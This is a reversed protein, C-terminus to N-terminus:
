EWPDELDALDVRGSEDQAGTVDAPTPDPDDMTWEGDLSLPASLPESPDSEEPPEPLNDHNKLLQWLVAKSSRPKGDVGLVEKGPRSTFLHPNSFLCAKIDPGRGGIGGKGKEAIEPYTRWVGDDLLDAIDSELLRPDGEEALLEFGGTNRVLGVVVPRVTDRAHRLKAPNLRIMDPRHMAKVTLIADAPRGWVGSIQELEDKGDTHHSLHHLFIFARDVYLGLTTLHERFKRVDEPSGVGEVGLTDLPDGIVVAIEADELHARVRERAEPDKFSLGGWNWTQVYIRGPFAFGIGDPDRETPGHWAAVKEAIKTRFAHQPGENEIICVNVPRPVEFGLWDLGSALHLSLDLILTTKGIGEKGAILGLGGVPIITNRRDGLLPEPPEVQLAIFEGLELAFPTEDQPEGNTSPELPATATM